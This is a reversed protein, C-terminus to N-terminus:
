CHGRLPTEQPIQAKQFMEWTNCMNYYTTQVIARSSRGNKDKTVASKSCEHVEPM